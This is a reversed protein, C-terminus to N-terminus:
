RKIRDLNLGYQGLPGDIALSILVFRSQFLQANERQLPHHDTAVGHKAMPIPALRDSVGLSVVQHEDLLVLGQKLAVDGESETGVLAKGGKM